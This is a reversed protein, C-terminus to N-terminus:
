PMRKTKMRRRWCLSLMLVKFALLLVFLIKAILGKKDLPLVNKITGHCNGFHVKGVVAYLICIFFLGLHSFILGTLIKWWPRGKQVYVEYKKGAM